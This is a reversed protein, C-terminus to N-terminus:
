PREDRPALVTKVTTWRTYKFRTCRSFYMISRDVKHLAGPEANAVRNGKIYIEGSLLLLNPCGRLIHNLLPWFCPSSRGTFEEYNQTLSISTVNLGVPILFCDKGKFIWLPFGCMSINSLSMMHLFLPPAFDSDEYSDPLPDGYLSLREQEPNTLSGSCDEFKSFDFSMYDEEVEYALTHLRPSNHFRTLLRLFGPKVNCFSLSVIQSKYPFISCLALPFFEESELISVRIYLGSDRDVETLAHTFKALQDCFDKKTATTFELSIKWLLTNSKWHVIEYWQRCVMTAQEAFTTLVRQGLRRNAWRDEGGAPAEEAGIAFIRSLVEDPFSEGSLADRAHPRKCHVINTSPLM